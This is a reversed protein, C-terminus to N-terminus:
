FTKTVLGSRLKPEFWTSKPPMIAGTDAITMLQEVSVAHVAFAVAMDLNCRRELEGTGRIGGVFGIRTDTRPDGVKLLPGLLNDQLISVDLGAVPDTADFTGERATLAYWSGNLFMGFVRPSTDPAADCLSVDFPEGIAALLAEPSHGALDKVVRHYGMIALKDDPFVVALFHNYDEDGTHGPNEARMNNRVRFASATRHHGDAVYLADVGAFAQQIAAVDATDSVVWLTHGV